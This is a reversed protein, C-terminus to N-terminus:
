MLEVALDLRPEARGSPWGELTGEWRVQARPSLRISRRGWHGVLLDVRLSAEAEHRPGRSPIFLPSWAAELRVANALSGPLGVRQSFTLRPGVVPVLEDSGWRLGTRAGVGLTTYHHFGPGEDLVLLAEGQATARYRLDTGAERTELQAEM